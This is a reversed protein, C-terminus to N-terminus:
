GRGSLPFLVKVEGKARMRGRKTSLELQSCALSFGPRSARVEGRLLVTEKEANYTLHRAQIQMTGWHGQVPSGFFALGKQRKIEGRPSRIEVSTAEKDEFVIVPEQLVIRDEPEVFQGSAARVTFKKESGRGYTLRLGSINLDAQVDSFSPKTQWNGELFFCFAAFVLLAIILRSM